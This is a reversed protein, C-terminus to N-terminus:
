NQTIIKPNFWDDVKDFVLDFLSRRTIFFRTTLTMGKSVNTTYGNKLQLSKTNLSCRVKFFATNDQLTINNDIEIIKGDLMGWQNYNFADLQFKVEQGVHLLGIDTPTVTNEVILNSNPSLTALTQSANVFSGVQLGLVNELTGSIPATLVYNEAEVNLNELTTSLNTLREELDRKQNEWQSTQQKIYLWKAQKATKLEYDHTEFEAKAIVGKDYLTKYRNYNTQAQTIRQQLEQKKAKFTYWDERAATTILYNTKNNLLFSTDKLLNSVTKYLSDNLAKQNQLRDQTVTLLTDGVSVHQNNKLNLQTIKGSVITNLTVNEQKARVIGRSQSSIDVRIIPLCALVSILVLVVLLYM